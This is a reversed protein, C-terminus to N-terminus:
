IIYFLFNDVFSQLADGVRPVLEHGPAFHGGSVTIRGEEADDARQVHLIGGLGVHDDLGGHLFQVDLTGRKEFNLPMMEGVTDKGGIRGAQADVATAEGHATGVLDHAQM